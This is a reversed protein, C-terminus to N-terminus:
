KNNNDLHVLSLCSSLYLPSNETKFNPFTNFSKIESVAEREIEVQRQSFRRIEYFQEDFQTRGENRTTYYYYNSRTFKYSYM